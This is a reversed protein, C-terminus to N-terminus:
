SQTRVMMVTEKAKLDDMQSTKRRSTPGQEKNGKIYFVSFVLSLKLLGM